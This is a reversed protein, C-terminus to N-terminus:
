IKINNLAKSIVKIFLYHFICIISGNIMFNIILKKTPAIQIVETVTIESFNPVLIPPTRPPNGEVQKIAKNKIPHVCDGSTAECAVIM